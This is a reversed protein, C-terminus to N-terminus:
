FPLEADDLPQFDSLEEAFMDDASSEQPPEPPPVFDGGGAQAGSRSSLFEVEDAVIETVYRRIGNADEYNRTQIQGFVGVKSGKSLYKGCNEALGRWTVVPIFDTQQQGDQSKFRRSVAVTFTTVSVGSPTTRAEPDRTLNGVLIAKNM